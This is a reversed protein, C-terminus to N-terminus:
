IESPSLWRMSVIQFRRGYVQNIQKAPTGTLEALDSPDVYNRTRVVVAECTARATINGSKDRADGYARITFTDDRANLIPALPRLVDAQRTWGPLGYTAQGEAALPFKYEADGYAAPTASSPNPNTSIITAYPNTASSKAIENLASQITGALALNNDSSLQRNVFESLSLFPGRLRVQKVIETALADLQKEDLIRYGSFEAAGPFAGSSGATKAESDGAISFRAFPYDAQSSLDVSWATGTDKIFPVKQNRAHGLLARWAAV